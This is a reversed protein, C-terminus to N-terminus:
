VGSRDYVELIGLPHQRDSHGHTGNPWLLVPIKKRCLLCGWYPSCQPLNRSGSQISKNISVKSIENM